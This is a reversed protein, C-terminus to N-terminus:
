SMSAPLPRPNRQPAPRPQTHRLIQCIEPLPAQTTTTPVFAPAMTGAAEVELSQYRRHM